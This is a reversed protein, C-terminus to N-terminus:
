ARLFILSAAGHVNLVNRHVHGPCDSLSLTAIAKAYTVVIKFKDEAQKRYLGVTAVIESLGELDSAPAASEKSQVIQKQVVDNKFGNRGVQKNLEKAIAKTCFRHLM